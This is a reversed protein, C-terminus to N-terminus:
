HLILLSFQGGNGDWSQYPIPLRSKSPNLKYRLLIKFIDHLQNRGHLGPRGAMRCAPRPWPFISFLHSKLFIRLNQQKFLKAIQMKINENKMRKDVVATNTNKGAGAHVPSM